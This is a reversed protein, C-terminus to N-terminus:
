SATAAASSDAQLRSRRLRPVAPLLPPRTEGRKKGRPPPAEIQELYTEAKSASGAKMGGDRLSHVLTALRM